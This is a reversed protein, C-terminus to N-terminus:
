GRPVDLLEELPSIRDKGDDVAALRPIRKGFDDGVHVAGYPENAIMRGIIGDIGVPDADGPARGAPM